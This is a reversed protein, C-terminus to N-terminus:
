SWRERILSVPIAIVPILQPAGLKAPFIYVVFSSGAAAGRVFTVVVDHM